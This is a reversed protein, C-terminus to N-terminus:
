SSSTLPSLGTPLSRTPFPYYHSLSKLRPRRRPSNPKPQRSHKGDPKHRPTTHRNGSLPLASQRVGSRRRKRTNGTEISPRRGMIRKILIPIRQIVFVSVRDLLKIRDINPIGIQRAISQHNRFCEIHLRALAIGFVNSRLVKTYGTVFAIAICKHTYLM